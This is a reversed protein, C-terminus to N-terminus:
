EVVGLMEGKRLGMVLVLVYAACFPDRDARASALFRASGREDVGLPEQRPETSGEVNRSVQEDMMAQGLMARLTRRVGALSGPSLVERCCVPRCCLVTAKAPETAAHDEDQRNAQPRRSSRSALPRSRLSPGQDAILRRANWAPVAIEHAAQGNM